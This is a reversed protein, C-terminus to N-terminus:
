YDADGAPFLFLRAADMGTAKAAEQTAECLTRARVSGLYIRGRTVPMGSLTRPMDCELAFIDFEPM